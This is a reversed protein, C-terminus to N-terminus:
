EEIMAVQAEIDVPRREVGAIIVLGLLDLLEHNTIGGQSEVMRSISSGNKIFASFRGYLEWQAPYLRSGTRAQMATGARTAPERAVM